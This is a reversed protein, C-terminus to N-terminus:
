ELKTASFKKAIDDLRVVAAHDFVNILGQGDADERMRRLDCVIQKIELPSLRQQPLETLDDIIKQVRAKSVGEQLAGDLNASSSGSSNVQASADVESLINKLNQLPTNEFVLGQDEPQGEGM